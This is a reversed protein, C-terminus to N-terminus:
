VETDNEINDKKKWFRKFFLGDNISGWVKFTCRKSRSSMEKAKKVWQSILKREMISYDHTISIKSYSQSGKLKSLNEMIKRKDGETKFIVKMPRGKGQEKRGIRLVKFEPVPQYINRFIDQVLTQDIAMERHGHIIVNLNRRRRDHEESLRSFQTEDFNQNRPDKWLSNENSKLAAAYSQTRNDDVCSSSQVKMMTSTIDALQKTVSVKLAALEAIVNPKSSEKEDALKTELDDIKREM